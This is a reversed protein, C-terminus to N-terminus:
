VVKGGVAGGDADRERAFGVGNGGARGLNNDGHGAADDM